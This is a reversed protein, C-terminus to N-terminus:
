YIGVFDSTLMKHGTAPFYLTVPKYTAIFIQMQDDMFKKVAIDTPPLAMRESENNDNYDILNIAWVYGLGTIAGQSANFEILRGPLRMQGKYHNIDFVAHPGGYGSTTIANLNNVASLDTPESMGPNQQVNNTTM